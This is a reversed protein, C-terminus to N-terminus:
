RGNKKNSSIIYFSRVFVNEEFFQESLNRFNSNILVRQIKGEPPNKM